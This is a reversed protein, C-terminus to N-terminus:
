LIKILYFENKYQFHRHSNKFTSVKFTKLIFAGDDDGEM